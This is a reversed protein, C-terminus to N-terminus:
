LRRAAACAIAASALLILSTDADRRAADAHRIMLTDIDAASHWCSMLTVGRARIAFTDFRRRRIL